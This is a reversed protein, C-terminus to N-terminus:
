VLSASAKISKPSFPRQTLLRDDIERIIWDNYYQLKTRIYVDANKVGEFSDVKTLVSDVTFVNEGFLVFILLDNPDIISPRYLIREQFETYMQEYVNRYHSKEVNIVIIFQIYGIMFAPDRQLSFDLLRGEKMRDLRRTITRESIGLEKAIESIEMRIGSLLLCKIIRLDTESPDASVALELISIMKVIAPKIFDNLSQVAKDDLSEKIIFSALSTRGMHHAHFALDGFQEVRKSIDEKSIGNNRVVLVNATRYGFGGPNVRVVFKEIIGSRMMNKVRAKVIKSTLGNLSGISRYSTRCDRALTV